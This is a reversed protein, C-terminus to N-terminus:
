RNACVSCLCSSTIMIPFSYFFASHAHRFGIVPLNIVPKTDAVDAPHASFISTKGMVRATAFTSLHSEKQPKM